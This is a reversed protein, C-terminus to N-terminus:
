FCVTGKWDQWDSVLGASVPNNLTYEIARQLHNRDRITIDYSESQWVTGLKGAVKNLKSASFRKVSQLIDQLYVPNDNEDKDLTKFVWHIHNPMVCLAYNELRKGEWFCLTDVVIQTNEENSLDISFTTQLHLLDDFAKMYKRRLIYYKQTLENIVSEDANNMKAIELESKVNRLDISYHKLAKPPVADNLSWTIFYAQGSQQFHPLNRRYSEKKEM